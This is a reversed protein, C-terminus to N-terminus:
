QNLTYVFLDQDDDNDDDTLNSASSNFILRQSDSTFKVNRSYGNVEKRDVPVTVHIIDRANLDRLYVQRQPTSDNTVFAVYQGDPSIDPFITEAYRYQTAGNPANTTIDSIISNNETQRDFLMVRKSGTITSEYVIKLGNDTIAGNNVSSSVRTTVDTNVMAVTDYVYVNTHVSQRGNVIMYDIDKHLVFRGNDSVDLPAVSNNSSDSILTTTANESNHVFIGEGSLQVGAGLDSADSAFAVISADSSMKARSSDGTGPLGDSTRSVLTHLRTNSDYLFVQSGGNTNAGELNTAYSSLAIFRSNESIADVTSHNDAESGNNGRTVLEIDGTNHNLTFVDSYGSVDAAYFDSRYSRFATTGNTNATIVSSATRDEPLDIRQLQSILCTETGNWGFSDGLPLSDICSSAPQSDATIRCSTVGDWGWGDGVPPSDVCVAMVDVTCSEVGNWGWGDGVPPSDICVLEAPTVSCAEVGNWGWGDNLPPSDICDVQGPQQEAICSAVGNWGWGDGDYDICDSSQAFARPSMCAIVCAVIFFAKTTLNHM